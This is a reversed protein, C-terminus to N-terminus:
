RARESRVCLTYYEVDARKVADEAKRRKVDLKSDKEGNKGSEKDPSKQHTRLPLISISPSRSIRSFHNRLAVVIM